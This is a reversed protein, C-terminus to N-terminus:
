IRGPDSTWPAVQVTSITAVRVAMRDHLQNAFPEVIMTGDAVTSM